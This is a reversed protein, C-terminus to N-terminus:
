PNPDPLEKCACPMPPQPDVAPEWPDPGDVPDCPADQMSGWQCVPANGAELTSWVDPCPASQYYAPVTHRANMRYIEACCRERVAPVCGPHPSSLLARTGNPAVQVHTGAYRAWGSFSDIHTHHHGPAPWTFEPCDPWSSAVIIPENPEVIGSSCNGCFVKTALPVFGPPENLDLCGYIDNLCPHEENYYDPRFLSWVYMLYYLCWLEPLGKKSCARYVKLQRRLYPYPHACCDAGSFWSIPLKIPGRGPVKFMAIYKHVSAMSPGFRLRPLCGDTSNAIEAINTKCTALIRWLVHTAAMAIRDKYAVPNTEPQYPGPYPFDFFAACPAYTMGDQLAPLFPWESFNKTCTVTPDAGAYSLVQTALEVLQDDTAGLIAATQATVPSVPM